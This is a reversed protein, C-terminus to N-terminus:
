MLNFAESCIYITLVFVVGLDAGKRSHPHRINEFKHCTLYGCSHAVACVDSVIASSPVVITTRSVNGTTM